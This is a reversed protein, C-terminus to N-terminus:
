WHDIRSDHCCNFALPEPLIFIFVFDLRYSSYYLSAICSRSIVCKNQNIKLIWFICPMSFHSISILCVQGLGQWCKGSAWDNTFLPNKKWCFYTRSSTLVISFSYWFRVQLIMWSKLPIIHKIQLILRELWHENVM